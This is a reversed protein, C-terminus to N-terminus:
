KKIKNFSRPHSIIFVAILLLFNTLIIVAHIKFMKNHLALRDEWTRYIQVTPTDTVKIYVRLAYRKKVNLEGTETIEPNAEEIAIGGAWDGQPITNPVEVNFEVFEEKHKPIKLQSKPLDIWAGVESLKSSRSKLKFGTDEVASRDVADLPFIDILADHETLNRVRAKAAVKQGPSLELIVAPNSQKYIDPTTISIEKQPNFLHSFGLKYPIHSLTMLYFTYGIFILLLPIFWLSFKQWPSLHM